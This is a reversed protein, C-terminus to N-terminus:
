ELGFGMRMDSGAECVGCAADEGIFSSQAGRDSGGGGAGYDEFECGGERWECNSRSM